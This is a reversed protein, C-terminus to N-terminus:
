RLPGDAVDATGQIAPLRAEREDVDVRWAEM